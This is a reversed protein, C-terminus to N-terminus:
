VRAMRAIRVQGLQRAAPSLEGREHRVPEVQVPCQQDLRFQGLWASSGWRTASSRTSRTWAASGSPHRVDDSELGVFTDRSAVNLRGQRGPDGARDALHSEVRGALRSRAGFAWGRISRMWRKVSGTRGPRRGPIADHQGIIRSRNRRAHTWPGTGSVAAWLADGVARKCRRAVWSGRSGWAFRANRIMIRVDRRAAARAKGDGRHAGQDGRRNANAAPPVPARACAAHARRGEGSLRYGRGRVSEARRTDQWTNRGRCGRSASRHARHGRAAGYLFILDGGKVRRLAGPGQGCRHRSSSGRVRVPRCRTAAVRGEVFNTRGSSTPSSAPRPARLDRAAHGGARDARREDGRDRDSM